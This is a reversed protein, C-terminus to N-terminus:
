EETDGYAGMKSLRHALKPDLTAGGMRNALRRQKIRTQASEQLLERTIAEEPYQRNFARVKELVRQRMDSDHNDWAMFHADMLAKRRDLIEAQATMQEINAKQRQALREPTFGIMQTISEKATIDGVLENGRLTTARGEAMFRAGKLFNKIAAPSATEIAREFHGQNFQKVADATSMALGATPGLANFIFNQMASVEDSSKRADRFWLDNLSLRDAVNAGLTQSVVGRSISDGVFGGFTSSCWNKFWNDFDWEDDDDGFAAHMANMIGSVMWWMPLGTAGAFVATMGLTGALRERAERKADKIFDNTAKNLEEETLATQGTKNERHDTLITQRIDLLENLIEQDKQSLKSNNNLAENRKAILEQIPPYNRGISEYASRALLYTMQQSFQKFQLIVKLAPHQFYRPKNLTSYDFMSKYTLDKATEIAKKQAAAETYGNALNKEFALKYASMAVIERNARETVHFPFSVWGMVKQMRAKYLTSPTEALGVIDHPLTIDLVGDAVFKDYAERELKSLISEDNSLSFFNLNGEADRVGSRVFKTGYDKMASMTKIGGFKASIVPFGVAPVGLMNTIASAPSTMYWIFSAGSLFGTIGGTDPPNMILSHRATLEKVYDKDVKGEEGGKDFAFQKAATLNDSLERSFKFRSQQYAMHFSSAAFARLMDKDMGAIGKRNLFMKRISKDPLTLYFLQDVADNLNERLETTDTGQTTQIMDKLNKLFEFDQMNKSSLDQISNGLFLETDTDIDRGLRQKLEKKYKRVFKDRAFSSEFMYFEKDKGTFFQASFRGFRRIPFYPEVKHRDFHDEIAFLQNHVDIERDTYGKKLLAERIGSAISSRIDNEALGKKELSKRLEKIGTINLKKIKDHADIEAQTFGAGLLSSKKNDVIMSVYNEYQTKYFNRVKRYITKGADSLNAWAANIDKNKTPKVDPDEGLLTADIMLSNLVEGEKPNKNQYEMWPNLIDRAAELQENRYDLMREVGNIFKRVQPIRYGIIEDLQRLTFAGLYHQRAADNVSSLFNGITGKVMSWEPKGQYPKETSSRLFNPNAPLSGSIISRIKAPAVTASASAGQFLPTPRMLAEANALTFGLVNDLRFLKILGQVFKNWTGVSSSRYKMTKLYDQFVWNSFAEAVFEQIDTFGYNIEDYLFKQGNVVVYKGDELGKVTHKDFQETAHAYLAKLEDVARKQHADLSDYNEEALSYYTAAHAVEHLFVGNSFGNAKSNLTITNWADVYAGASDLTLIANKYSDLVKNFQGIIPEFEERTLQSKGLAIEQLAKFQDRITQENTPAKDLGYKSLFDNGWEYSQLHQLVMRRQRNSEEVLLRAMNEQKDVLLTTKLDLSLLRQALKAQFKVKNSAQVGPDKAMLTLAGNLDGQQIKDVVGPHMPYFDKPDLTKMDSPAKDLGADFVGPVKGSPARGLMKEYITGVPGAEKRKKMNDIAQDARAIDRKYENVTAEFRGLEQKPLNEEVWKQFQKASESTQGKYAAGAFDKSFPVALDFAAARMATIYPWANFYTIAAKEEPTRQEKATAELAKLVENIRREVMPDTSRVTDKSSYPLATEDQGTRRRDYRAIAEDFKARLKDIGRVTNLDPIRLMAQFAQTQANVDMGPLEKVLNTTAAEREKPALSLSDLFNNMVAMRKALEPGSELTASVDPGKAPVPEPAGEERFRSVEETSKGGLFEAVDNLFNKVKARYQGAQEPINSAPKISNFFSTLPAMPAAEDGVLGMRATEPEEIPEPAPMEALKEGKELTLGQEKTPVTMEEQTQEPANFDLGMQEPKRAGVARAARAIEESSMGGNVEQQLKAFKAQSAELNGESRLSTRYNEPGRRKLNNEAIDFQAQEDPTATGSTVKSLLSYFTHSDAIHLKEMRSYPQTEQWESHAKELANNAEEYNANQREVNALGQPNNKFANYLKEPIVEFSQTVKGDQVLDVKNGNKVLQPGQYINRAGAVQITPTEETQVETRAQRLAKAETELQGLYEQAQGVREDSPDIESIDKIYGRTDTIKKDLNTLKNDLEEERIAARGTSLETRGVGGTTTGETGSEAPGQEGPVSVGPKGGGPIAGTNDYETAETFANRGAPAETTKAERLEGRYGRYTGAGGAVGGIGGGAAAAGFFAEKYEQMAKDDTLSLGAQYREAAQELVETPAEAIVGETAGIAARKAVEKGVAVAGLEGAARRKALEALVEKGAIKEVSGLGVTFRDAFYGIPATGAATLAAKAIELQQPDDKEQAQRVLFNGFQQVGYAAMGALPGTVVGAPGSLAGVASGVALPGAMQPASQLFQEVIYKPAEKAAELLGKEKYIREFDAVTMAPKEEPKAQDAKIAQMKARTEEESGTLATKALGLGSAVDGLSEVGRKAAAPISEFFGVDEPRRGREESRAIYRGLEDPKPTDELKFGKPLNVEPEELKFGKPLSIQQEPTQEELKFGEPLAM